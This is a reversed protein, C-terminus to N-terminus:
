PASSGREAESTCIRKLLNTVTTQYIRALQHIPQGASTAPTDNREGGSESPQLATPLKRLADVREPQQVIRQLVATEDPTLQEGYKDLWKQEIDSDSGAALDVLGALIQYHIAQLKQLATQHYWNVEDDPAPLRDLIRTIEAARPEGCSWSQTAHRPM